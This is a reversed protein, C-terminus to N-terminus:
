KNKVIIISQSYLDQFRNEFEYINRVRVNPSSVEPDCLYIEEKVLDFGVIVVAHDNGPWLLEKDNYKFITSGIVRRYMRDDNGMTAWVIVPIGKKVVTLLQYLSTKTTNYVSYMNQLGKDILYSNIAKIIAPAMCGFGDNYIDGVFKTWFTDVFYEDKDLYSSLYNKTINTKCIYSLACAAATIECGTQLAPDNDYSVYQPINNLKIFSNFIVRNPRDFIFEKTYYYIYGLKTSLENTYIYGDKSNDFFMIDKTHGKISSSNLRNDIATISTNNINDNSDADDLYDIYIDQFINNRRFYITNNTQDNRYNINLFSIKNNIICDEFHISCVTDFSFNFDINCNIICNSFLIYGKFSLVDLSNIICDRIILHKNTSISACLTTNAISIVHHFLYTGKLSIANSVSLINISKNTSFTSSDDITLMVNTNNDTIAHELSSYEFKNVVCDVFIDKNLNSHESDFIFINRKTKVKVSM